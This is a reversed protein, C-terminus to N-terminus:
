LVEAHYVITNSLAAGHAGVIFAASQFLLIQDRLSMGEIYVTEFGYRSLCDQVQDLNQIARTPGRRAVLLRRGSGTQASAYLAAIRRRFSKLYAAPMTEVLDHEVWVAEEVGVFDAAAEV